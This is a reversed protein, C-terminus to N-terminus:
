HVADDRNSSNSRSFFDGQQRGNSRCGPHPCRCRHVRRHPSGHRNEGPLRCSFVIVPYIPVFLLVKMSKYSRVFPTPIDSQALKLLRNGGISPRSAEFMRFSTKGSSPTWLWQVQMRFGGYCFFVDLKRGNCTVTEM